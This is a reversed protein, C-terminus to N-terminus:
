PTEQPPKVAEGAGFVRVTIPRSEAGQNTPKPPDSARGVAVQGFLTAASFHCRSRWRVNREWAVVGDWLERDRLLGPSRRTCRADVQEPLCAFWSATEFAGRIAAELRVMRTSVTFRRGIV